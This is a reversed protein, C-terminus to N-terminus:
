QWLCYLLQYNSHVEATNWLYSLQMIHSKYQLAEFLQFSFIFLQFSVKFARGKQLLLLTM